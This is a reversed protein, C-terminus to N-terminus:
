LKNEMWSTKNKLNMAVLASIGSESFYTISFYILYNMYDM